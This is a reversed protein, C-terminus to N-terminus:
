TQFTFFGIFSDGDVVGYHCKVRANNRRVTLEFQAKREGFTGKQVPDKITVAKSLCKPKKLVPEDEKINEGGWAVDVILKNNGVKKIKLPLPRIDSHPVLKEHSFAIVFFFAFFIFISLLLRNM